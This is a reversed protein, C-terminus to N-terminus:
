EAAFDDLGKSEFSKEELISMATAMAASNPRDSSGSQFSDSRREGAEGNGSNGDVGYADAKSFSKKQNKQTRVTSTGKTAIVSMVMEEFDQFDIRDSVDKGAESFVSALSMDITDLGLLKLGQLM